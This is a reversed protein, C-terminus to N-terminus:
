ALRDARVLVAGGFSAFPIAWAPPITQASADVTPGARALALLPPFLDGDIAIVRRLLDSSDALMGRLAYPAPVGEDVLALNPLQGAAAAADLRADQGDPPQDAVT